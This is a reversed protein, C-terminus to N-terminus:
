FEDVAVDSLKNYTEFEDIGVNANAHAQQPLASDDRTKNIRSALENAFRDWSRLSGTGHHLLVAPTTALPRLGVQCKARDGVWCGVSSLGLEDRACAWHSTTGSVTGSSNLVVFM